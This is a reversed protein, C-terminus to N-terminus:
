KHTVSTMPRALNPQQIPAIMPRSPAVKKSILLKSDNFFHVEQESGYRSYIFDKERKVVSPENTFLISQAFDKDSTNQEYAKRLFGKYILVDDAFIELEEVGRVTTKSYNWIKIMSVAVPEEFIVYLYNIQGPVYPALWMHRDNWTYNVGDILKDLTRVDNKNNPLEQISKPIAQIDIFTLVFTKRTSNITLPIKNHVADYLEIGNLGVYYPDGYSSILHFKFVDVIDFVTLLV